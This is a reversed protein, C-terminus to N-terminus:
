GHASNKAAISLYAAVLRKVFETDREGMRKHLPTAMAVALAPMGDLNRYFEDFTLPQEMTSM